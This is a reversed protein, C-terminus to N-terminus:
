WMHKAHAGKSHNGLCHQASTKPEHKLQRNREMSRHSSPLVIEVQLKGTSWSCSKFHNYCHNAAELTGFNIVIHGQKNLHYGMSSKQVGAAWLIADLCADNCLKIPIGSLAVVFVDRQVGQHPTSTARGQVISSVQSNLTHSEISPPLMAFPSLGGELFGTSMGHKRAICPSFDMQEGKGVLECSERDFFNPMSGLSNGSWHGHAENGVYPENQTDACEKMSDHAAKKTDELCGFPNQETPFIDDEEESLDAWRQKPSGFDEDTTTASSLSPSKHWHSMSKEPLSLQMDQHSIM